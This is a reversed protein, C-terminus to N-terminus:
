SATADARGHDGDVTLWDMLYRSGQALAVDTVSWQASSDTVVGTKLLVPNGTAYDRFGLWALAKNPLLVRDNNGLPQSTITGAVTATISWSITNTQDTNTASDTARVVFSGSGVAGRTGSFVATSGVQSIGTPLTGSLVAYTRSLGGSFYSSLDLSMPTGTQGNQAPVSGAFTVAVTLSAASSTTPGNSDTVVCTVSGGHDALVVGTRAYTSSDTGVNSGNFKWQYSNSGGSATAAITYTATAGVKATQNTPQTNITPGSGGASPTVSNSAASEPGFGDSNEAKVKFTYATGNTLGSVTIPSTAGTGTIGGPSSTATYGSIAPRGTNSPATFAVSASANGATATGITPALPPESVNTVTVSCSQSVSASANFVIAQPNVLGGADFDFPTVPDIRWSTSSLATIAWNAAQAGTLTPYGGGLAIDTSFTPGTSANEAINATSSGAGAAGSPGTIVPTSAAGDDATIQTSTAGRGWFGVKSGSATLTNDTTTGTLTVAAGDLWVSIVGSADVKFRLTHSSRDGVAITPTATCLTTGTWDTANALKVVTFTSPNIWCLLQAGGTTQYRAVCGALWNDAIPTWEMTVDQLSDGPSASNIFGLISAESFSGRGASINVDGTGQFNAPNSWTGGVDATKGVLFAASSYTENLFQAM